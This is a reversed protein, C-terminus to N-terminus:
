INRAQHKRTKELFDDLETDPFYRAPKTMSFYAYLGDKLPKLVHEVNPRLAVVNMGGGRGYGFYIYELKELQSIEPPFVIYSNIELTRLNKLLGFSRPLIPIKNGQLDIWELHALRGIEEPLSYLGIRRLDWKIIRKQSAVNSHFKALWHPNKKVQSAIIEVVEWEEPVIDTEHFGM